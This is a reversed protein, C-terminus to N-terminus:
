KYCRMITFVYKEIFTKDFLYEWKKYYRAFGNSCNTIADWLKIESDLRIGVHCYHNICAYGVCKTKLCYEIRKDM